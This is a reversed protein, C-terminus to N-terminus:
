AYAAPNAAVQKMTSTGTQPGGAGLGFKGLTCIICVVSLGATMLINGTDFSGINSSSLGSYSGTNCASDRQMKLTEIKSEVDQMFPLLIGTVCAAMCAFFFFLEPKGYFIFVAAISWLVILVTRIVGEKKKIEDIKGDLRAIENECTKVYDTKTRTVDTMFQTTMNRVIRTKNATFRVTLGLMGTINLSGESSSDLNDLVVSCSFNSGEPRQVCNANRTKGDKEYWATILEMDDPPNIAHTEIGLARTFICKGNLEMISCGFGEPETGDFILYLDDANLCEGALFGGTYCYQDSEPCACDICCNGYSEGM